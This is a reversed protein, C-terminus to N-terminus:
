FDFLSDGNADDSALKKGEFNQTSSQIIQQQMSPQAQIQSPMVVSSPATPQVSSSNGDTLVLECLTKIAILQDRVRASHHAEQKAKALEASMKDLLQELKIEM